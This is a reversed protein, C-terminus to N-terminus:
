LQDSLRSSLTVKVPNNKTNIVLNQERLQKLSKDVKYKTVDLGKILVSKEIGEGELGFIYDQGIVFLIDQCLSDLEELENILQHLQGIKEVREALDELIDEQAQYVISFFTQCFFTLEGKNLHNNSENFIDYYYQKLKNTSYSLTLATLQDLEEKLYMSAIYRSTRGNGDYFPHIYGFYYHTVAIKYLMPANYENLYKILDKLSNQILIEPYVGKHIVKQTSTVVDVPGRRFMEGDLQDEEKIEDKVLSDYIEKIQELSTIKSNKDSLLKFYSNVLSLHRVKKQTKTAKKERVAMADTMEARTSQVGEIENTSMLEDVLKAQIYQRIAIPPLKDAVFQIENSQKIIQEHLIDLEMHNVYFCEFEDSSKLPKIRFPLRVTGYSNIRKEYEAQYDSSDKYYIKSLREYM